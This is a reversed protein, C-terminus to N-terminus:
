RDFYHFVYVVQNLPPPTGFKLYTGDAYPANPGSLSGGSSQEVTFNVTGVQPVQGVYVILNKAMQAANWTVGSQATLTFPDPNLLGFVTEVANGTGLNQLIVGGAEKFRFSRWAGSQYGEFENSQSNYRIMGNIPSGPRDTTIGKPLLLSIVGDMTVRGDAEVAVSHDKVNRFNLQSQKVFKM